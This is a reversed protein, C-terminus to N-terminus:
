VQGQENWFNELADDLMKKPDIDKKPDRLKKTDFTIMPSVEGNEEVKLKAGFVTGKPQIEVQNYSNLKIEGVDTNVKLYGAKSAINIIDEPEEPLNEPM